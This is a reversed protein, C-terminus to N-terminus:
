AEAPPEFLIPLCQEYWARLAALDPHALCRLLYQEVRPLHELYQSKGDRVQLRTFIGLIKTARQAGLAAYATAFGSLDFTEDQEQRARAYHSLLQLELRPDVTVRADQLLSVVDYAPHGRVADQFDLLGVRALGDREPLWMLNPSHYDRLTWSHPGEVVESLLGRWLNVFTARSSSSINRRVIHPLYWDPLLEVEILLADLDYPPIAYDAEGEVPLTEPLDLGHLRALLLVAEMYREPVPEGAEAIFANGFDEIILLGTKLDAALIAPASFGRAALAQAMAVFPTVSEALRAIASYSKGMRVPPGDPRPPSIMMIATRGERALREYVRHGADGNVHTRDAGRWGAQDLIHDIAKMMQVRAAFSGHGTIVLVRHEPGEEPELIMALDIRDAALAAGAREPWEVLVLAGDSAEDWGLEALESAHKIRYLDAHVVRLAPGDYVQMLTYTPSPVELTADDLLARILVRALTTKGSGLDGSLTVLDGARLDTALEQAVAETAALDALDVVWSTEQAPQSRPADAM